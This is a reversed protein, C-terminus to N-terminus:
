GDAVRYKRERLKSDYTVTMDKCFKSKELIGHVTQWTRKLDSSFVQTFKVNSLFVGAAAAQQFGTESLPKDVGQGQFIKEKNM